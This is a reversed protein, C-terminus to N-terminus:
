MLRGKVDQSGTDRDRKDKVTQKGFNYSIALAISQTDNYYNDKVRLEGLRYEYRDKNSKFWDQASLTIGFPGATKRLRVETDLRNGIRTNVITAPFSNTIVLTSTLGAKKSITFTQNTALTVAVTKNDITVNAYTGKTVVYGVLMTGSFRWWPKPQNNYSATLSHGYRNGYNTKQNIITDGSTYPLSYIEGITQSAALQLTLTGWKENVSRSLEQRYYKVPQLLPNGTFYAKDTTYTRFPNLDWYGPRSIRSTLALVYAGKKKTAFKLFATPFVNTYNQSVVQNEKLWGKAATNEMRVGVQYSWADSLKYSFNGYLANINEQYRFSNSQDPDSIFVNGGIQDEFLFTNSIKSFSTKGGFSLTGKKNRLPLDLDAKISQNNIHQPSATRFVNLDNIANGTLPDLNTNASNSNNDSLYALADYDVSLMKGTSDLKGQYNLNLSYTQSTIRDKNVTKTVSDINTYFDRTLANRTERRSIGAFDFLMGVVHKDNLQYDAGFSAGPYLETYRNVSSINRRDINNSSTGAPYYINRDTNPKRSRNGLYLNSYFNWKGSRENLFLSGAESNVATQRSSLSASGILGEEKSKKTVINIIGAGGEAEYRSPPTTIVEIAELNDSPLGSLYSKLASGSLVKKKDNIYVIVGTTGSIAISGDESARVLPTKELVDWVNNGTVLDTQGVNFRFRDLERQFVPKKAKITVESLTRTANLQLNIATDRNLVFKIITDRYAVFNVRMMHSGPKLNRIQYYGSSDSVAGSTKAGPQQLSIIALSLPKGMDDTIKGTVKFQAYLN